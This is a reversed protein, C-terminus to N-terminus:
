ATAPATGNGRSICVWCRCGQFSRSCSNSWHILRPRGAAGRTTLARATAKSDTFCVVHTAGELRQLCASIIMTAGYMEGAPMSWEDDQLRRLSEADWRECVYGMSSKEGERQWISFEGYGTDDERAADTFVFACGPDGTESLVLSPTLVGGLHQGGADGEVM